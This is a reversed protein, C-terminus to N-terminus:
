FNLQIGYRRYIDDAFSTINNTTSSNNEQNVDIDYDVDASQNSTNTATNNGATQQNNIIFSGGSVTNNNGVSSIDGFTNTATAHQTSDQDIGTYIDIVSDNEQNTENNIDINIDNDSGGGGGTEGGGGGTEGGGGGTEGGDDDHLHDNMKWWYQGGTGDRDYKDSHWQTHWYGFQDQTFDGVDDHSTGYFKNMERVRDAETAGLTGYGRDFYNGSEGDAVYLGEGAMDEYAALVDDRESYFRDTSFNDVTDRNNIMDNQYYGAGQGAKGYADKHFHAHWNGFQSESFDGIDDYNTGYFLNMQDVRSKEDGVSKGYEDFYAGENQGATYLGEQALDEYALAMDPRDAIMAEWNFGEQYSNVGRDLVDYMNMGTGDENLAFKGSPKGVPGGTRGKGGERHQTNMKYPDDTFYREAEEWTLVGQNVMNHIEGPGFYRADGTASSNRYQEIRDAISAM